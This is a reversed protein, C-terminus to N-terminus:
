MGPRACLFAARKRAGSPTIGTLLPDCIAQLSLAYDGLGILGWTAFVAPSLHSSLPTINMVEVTHLIKKRSSSVVQQSEEFVYELCRWKKWCCCVALVM